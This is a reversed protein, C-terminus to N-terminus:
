SCVLCTGLDLVRDGPRPINYWNKLRDYMAPQFGPRYRAYDAAAKAWSLGETKAYERLSDTDFSQMPLPYLIPAKCFDTHLLLGEHEVSGPQVARHGGGTGTM